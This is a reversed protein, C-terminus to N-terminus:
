AHASIYEGVYLNYGSLFRIKGARRTYVEKEAATLVNKWNSVATTLADRAAQGAANNISSPVFYDYKDQIPRGLPEGYNNKGTRVRYTIENNISGRVFLGLQKTRYTRNRVEGAVYKESFQAESFKFQGFKAM